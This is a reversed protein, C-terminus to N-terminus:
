QPRHRPSIFLSSTAFLPHAFNTLKVNYNFPELSFYIKNHSVFWCNTMSTNSVFIPENKVLKKRLNKTSSDTNVNKETKLDKNFICVPSELSILDNNLVM